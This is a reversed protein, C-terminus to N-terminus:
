TETLTRLIWKNLNLHVQGKDPFFCIRKEQLVQEKNVLWLMLKINKQVFYFDIVSSPCEAGKTVVYDVTVRSCQVNLQLM